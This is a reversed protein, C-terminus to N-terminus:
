GALRPQELPPRELRPWDHRAALTAIVLAPVIWVLYLWGLLILAVQFAAVAIWGLKSARGGVLLLVGITIEIAAAVLGWFGPRAMFIDAWLTSVWSMSASEGYSAYVQPDAAVVGIHVGAMCTYFAGAAVTFGPPWRRTTAHDTTM